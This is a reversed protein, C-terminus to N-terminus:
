LKCTPEIDHSMFHQDHSQLTKTEDRNSGESVVGGDSDSECLVQLLIILRVVGVRSVNYKNCIHVLSQFLASSLTAVTCELPRLVNVDVGSGESQLLVKKLIYLARSVDSFSKFLSLSLFWQGESTVAM